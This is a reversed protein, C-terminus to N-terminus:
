SLNFICIVSTAHHMISKLMNSKTLTGIQQLVQEDHKVQDEHDVMIQIFDNQRELHQRCLNLIQNLLETLYDVINKPLISYGKTYSYRVLRPSKVNKSNLITVNGLQIPVETKECREFEVLRLARVIGLKAEVLAFRMGICNRPGEGFSLFAMPHRKAKEAPLFREPIFKEPEPWVESDHHIPYVPVNIITGKPILYNGLQYDKSAVRDFRIFPPYMRLTENIVMDLYQLQNLKEYTVEDDGIEQRIEQYIKEQIIPETAMVYFFFSMLVSTTEYGAILFVLAQSLIEKDSLTKKLSKSQQGEQDKIEEEHDIMIQIFDNRRELRQRRRALVQNVIKTTYEMSDMPLFTYGKKGLYNALRASSLFIILLFINVFSFNFFKKLHNILTINENKLSNTEIGFLCSAINDLTYQGNITKIDFIEQKDAYELLRENYMDSVDNMLSHMAKLKATSFTPSVISRANKWQEDKLVTLGHELPGAAGEITRRNIFVHSDKILVNRLIDLDSLLIVPATGEYVGIIKGYKKVLAMDNKYMGRRMVNFMEGLLPIPVPGPMGIRRFINNTRLNYVYYVFILILLVLLTLTISDGILFLSM